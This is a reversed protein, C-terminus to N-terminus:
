GTPPQPKPSSSRLIRISKSRSSSASSGGEGSATATARLRALTRAASGGARSAKVKAAYTVSDGEDLTARRWCINKGNVSAGNVRVSFLSAPLKLCTRVSEAPGSRPAASRGVPGALNNVKVRVTFAKGAKVKNPATIGVRLDPPEPSTGCPGSTDFTAPLAAVPEDYSDVAPIQSSIWPAAYGYEWAVYWENRACDMTISPNDGWEYDYEDGPVGEPVSFIVDSMGGNISVRRYTGPDGQTGDGAVPYAFHLQTAVSGRTSRNSLPIFYEAVGTEIYNESEFRESFYALGADVPGSSVEGSPLEIDYFTESVRDLVVVRGYGSFIAPADSDETDSPVNITVPLSLNVETATLAGTASDMKIIKTLVLENGPEFEDPTNFTWSEMTQFDTFITDAWNLFDSGGEPTSGPVQAGISFDLIDFAGLADDGHVFVKQNSVSIGGRVDGAVPGTDGARLATSSLSQIKFTETQAAQATSALLSAALVVLM